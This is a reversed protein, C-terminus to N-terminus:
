QKCYSFTRFHKLEHLRDRPNKAPKKFIAKFVITQDEMMEAKISGHQKMASQPTLIRVGSSKCRTKNNYSTLDSICRGDVVSLETM